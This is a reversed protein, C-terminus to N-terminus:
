ARTVASVAAPHDTMWAGDWRGGAATRLQPPFGTFVVGSFAPANGCLVGWCRTRILDRAFPVREILSPPALMLWLM